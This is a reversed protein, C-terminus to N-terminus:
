VKATCLMAYKVRGIPFKWPTKTLKRVDIADSLFLKWHLIWSLPDYIM